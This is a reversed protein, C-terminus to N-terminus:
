SGRVRLQGGEQVIEEIGVHSTVEVGHRQLEVGIHQGFSIDFNKLVSAGHEVVSVSLGRNTLADAMELGIYGGGIIVATRPTQSELIPM